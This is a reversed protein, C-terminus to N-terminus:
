GGDTAGSIHNPVRAAGVARLEAAKATEELIGCREANASCTADNEERLKRAVFSREEASGGRQIAKIAVDRPLGPEYESWRELVARAAALNREDYDAFARTLPAKSM